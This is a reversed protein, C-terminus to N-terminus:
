DFWGGCFGNVYVEAAKGGALGNFEGARVPAERKSLGQFILGAVIGTLVCGGEQEEL